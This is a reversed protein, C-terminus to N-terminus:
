DNSNGGTAETVKTCNRWSKHGCQTLIQDPHLSGVVVETTWELFKVKTGPPFEEDRRKCLEYEAKEYAHFLKALSTKSM